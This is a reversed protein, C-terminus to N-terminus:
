PGPTCVGRGYRGPRSREARRRARRSCAPPLRSHVSSLRLVSVMIRALSRARSSAWRL